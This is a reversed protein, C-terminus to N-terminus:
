LSQSRHLLAEAANAHIVYGIESAPGWTRTIEAEAEEMTRVARAPLNSVVEDIEDM